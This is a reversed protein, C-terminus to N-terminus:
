DAFVESVPLAFGPLLPESELTEGERWVRVPRDHRYVSITCRKPDAVWVSACGSDLWQQVKELVEGASDSPSLVEVALDPPGPFFGERQDLHLRDARVFGVDPARVTDPDREIIFGTEAAKVKGLRNAKAHRTLYFALNNAVDGHHSGAPSMMTLEGRLLECRGIDGARELQEATTIHNPTIM